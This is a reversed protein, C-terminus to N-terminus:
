HDEVRYKRHCASCSAAQGRFAKVLMSKDTPNELAKQFEKNTLHLKLLFAKFEKEQFEKKEKVFRPSMAVLSLREVEKAARRAVEPDKDNCKKNADRMQEMLEHMNEIKPDDKPVPATTPDDNKGVVLDKRIAPLKGDVPLAEIKRVQTEVSPEVKTEQSDDQAFVISIGGLILGFLVAGVCAVGVNKM